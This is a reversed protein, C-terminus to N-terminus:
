TLIRLLNLTMLKYAESMLLFARKPEGVSIRSVLPKGVFDTREDWGVEVNITWVVM